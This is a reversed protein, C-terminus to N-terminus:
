EFSLYKPPIDGFFVITDEDLGESSYENLYDHQVGIKAGLAQRMREDEFPDELSTRPMYGDAKMKDVHIMVVVDGYSDTVHPNRTAFVAAGVNRNSLGRTKDRTELGREAILERNERPTGHYLVDGPGVSKWFEENFDPCPVYYALDHDYISGLWEEATQAEGADLDVVLPKDRTGLGPDVEVITIPDGPKGVCTEEFTVTKVNYLDAHASLFARADAPYSEFVQALARMPDQWPDPWTAEAQSPTRPWEPQPKYESPDYFGMYQQQALKCNRLIWDKTPRAV